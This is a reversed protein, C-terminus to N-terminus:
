HTEGRSSVEVPFTTGDKRRHVTEFLVGKDAAEAMQRATEGRAETARLDHITLSLLEDRAYGYASLAALNAELVRGDEGNLFLIIDRTHQALLEYRKLTAKTGMKKLQKLGMEGLFSAFEAFYELFARLQSEKIIPIKEVARMYAAEDFGYRRAQKQFYTTDPAEFLFQGTFFNATHEGDIVIPAAADILGNKCTYLAYKQGAAVQNAILTDSEICREVTEPNVRHFNTCLDQWGSGTIIVGDLGIISAPIGTAKHFLDTLRQVKATDILDSFRHKM